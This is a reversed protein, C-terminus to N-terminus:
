IQSFGMMRTPVVVFITVVMNLGPLEHMGCEPVPYITHLPQNVLNGVQGDGDIDRMERNCRDVPDLNSM